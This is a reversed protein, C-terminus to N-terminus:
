RMRQKLNSLPMHDLAFAPPKAGSELEIALDVEKKQTLKKSLETPIIDKFEELM